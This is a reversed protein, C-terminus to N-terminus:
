GADAEAGTSSCCGVHLCDIAGTRPDPCSTSAHSRCCCSSGADGPRTPEQRVQHVPIIASTQGAPEHASSGNRTKDDDHGTPCRAPGNTTQCCSTWVHSCWRTECTRWTQGHEHSANGTTKSSPKDRQKRRLEVLMSCRAM